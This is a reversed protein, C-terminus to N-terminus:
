ARFSPAGRRCSDAPRWSKRTSRRWTHRAALGVSTPQARGYQGSGSRLYDGPCELIRASGGAASALALAITSAGSAGSCGVVPLVQEANGPAWTSSSPVARAKAAAAPSEQRFRGAQVARWARQLEPVSVVRGADVVATV